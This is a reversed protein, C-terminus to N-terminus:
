TKTHTLPFKFPITCIFRTGKDIKSSVDIKGNIEHMFQKVIRLGLGLGKYFGTNSPALRSFKEFIYELKDEPIGCGTDIVELRIVAYKENKELLSARLEVHGDKTFKIANSLLNILLRYIRYSDGVVSTPINSDYHTKLELNKNKAAPIEIKIARTIITKLNFEKDMIPCHGAEINSFDLIANCYDLLEKACEMIDGLYEKKIPDMEHRWLYQAMGFVGNFPTRIDHEVNRIFGTKAINAAEAKEKAKRLEAEIEKLYTIDVTNGVIGIVKGIEDLLPRKTSLRIYTKGDLTIPEEISMEQKTEMVALDNEKYRNAINEPFVDHDTKGIFYSDQTLSTGAELGINQMSEASHKNRGLYLGKKDKWYISGPITDIVSKLRFIEAQQEAIIHRLEEELKVEM